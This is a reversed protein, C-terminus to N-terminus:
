IWTKGGFLCITCLKNTGYIIIGKYFTISYVGYWLWFIRCITYLEFIKGGGHGM